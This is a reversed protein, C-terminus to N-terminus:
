SEQGPEAGPEKLTAVHRRVAEAVLATLRVADVPKSLYFDFGSRLARERDAESAHATLAICPLRGLEGPLSRIRGVLAHGDVEPMAVDSVLVDPPNQRVARLADHASGARTVTAGAALLMAGVVERASSEDDVVLVGIGRLPTLEPRTVGPAVPGSENGEAEGPPPLTVTFRAGQGPGPSGAEVTGRHAHVIEQVIALGLGLGSHRRRSSADGQRFREFVHPLVDPAIGEGSDEVVAVISDDPQVQVRVRVWGGDPTFKMANDVLNNFVQRLRDAHAAAMLGDPADCEIRIGRDRARERVMDVAARALQGVDTRVLELDLKQALVRSLDLLEDVLKSQLRANTDIRRVIDRIRGPEAFADPSLELLQTWGLIATLPTRLEHSVVALFEDKARSARQAERRLAQERVLLRAYEESALRQDHVDTNTGFWRVVQGQEDRLPMARSLHWRLEGDSGRRLRFEDEWPEGTRISNRFIRLMRPLDAPDHVTIWGWGEMEEPSTGTYDYWRRNYWDIWGSATASWALQPLWDVFTRFQHGTELPAWEAPRETEAIPADIILAGHASRAAGSADRLVSGRDLVPIWVGDAACIRYRISWRAHDRLAQEMQAQARERDDPHVRQWWSPLPGSADDATIGLFPEISPDWTRVGRTM